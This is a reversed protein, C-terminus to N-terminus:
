VTVRLGGCVDCVKHHGRLFHMIQRKADRIAFKDVVNYNYSHSNIFMDNYVALRIIGTWIEYTINIYAHYISGSSLEVSIVQSDSYHIISIKNKITRRITRRISSMIKNGIQYVVRHAESM